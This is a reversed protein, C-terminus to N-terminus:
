IRRFNKKFDEISVAEFTFTLTPKEFNSLNAIKVSEIKTTIKQLAEEVALREPTKKSSFEFNELFKINCEDKLDALNEIFVKFSQLSPKTKIIFDQIITEFKPNLVTVLAVTKLPINKEEIFKLLPESLTVMNNLTEFSKYGKIQSKDFIDLQKPEIGFKKAIAYIKSLKPLTLPKNYLQVSLNLADAINNVSITLYTSTEKGFGSIKYINDGIIAAVPPYPSNEDKDVWAFSVNDVNELQKLIFNM